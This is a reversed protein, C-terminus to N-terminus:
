GMSAAKDAILKDNRGKRHYTNISKNYLGPNDRWWNALEEEQHEILMQTISSKKKKGM